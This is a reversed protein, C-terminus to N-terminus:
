SAGAQTQAQNVLTQLTIGSAALSEAQRVKDIERRVLERTADARTSLEAGQSTRLARLIDHVTIKDLPRGPNCANEGANVTILLRDKALIQTIQATLRAPVGLQDSLEANSLPPEGRQFREAVRTMLRVAIYERGEQHVGEALRAQVYSRRNQYAYAVQAGFLLILWSLYLGFLFVPVVALSGYIKSYTVVKSVYMVQLLNNAQWLGGGVLGGAVAAKWPVTTNPMLRYFVAFGAALFFFPLVLSFKSSIFSLSATMEAARKARVIEAPYADELLLRNLRALGRSQPKKALLALTNTALSVRQFRAEEYISPGHIVRNLDDVVATQTEEEAVANTQLLSQTKPSLQRWLFQSVPETQSNLQRVLAPWDAISEPTLRARDAAAFQQGSTLGIALLLLLPGLTIAAWYQVTRAFWGRGKEVGWIDNFTKEINSLLLIAVVILSVMGTVGLTGSQINSISSTIERVVRQRADAGADGAHTPAAGDKPVLNLQPAVSKVLHDLMKEVPETGQTKLLSTSVSVVVALVPILSLLTTYALASARVPCRNRLFSKIVLLWFHASAAFSFGGRAPLEVLNKEEIFAQADAQLRKIRGIPESM